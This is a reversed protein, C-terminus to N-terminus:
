GATPGARDGAGADGERHRVRIVESQVRDPTFPNTSWCYAGRRGVTECVTRYGSSQRWDRPVVRGRIVVPLAAALSMSAAAPSAPMQVVTGTEGVDAIVFSEHEVIYAGRDSPAHFPLAHAAFQAVFALTLVTEIGGDDVVRVAKGILRKLM